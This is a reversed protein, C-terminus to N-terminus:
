SCKGRLDTALIRVMELFAELKKLKELNKEKEIEEQSKKDKTMAEGLIIRIIQVDAEDDLGAEEAISIWEKMKDSSSEIAQRLCYQILMKATSDIGNIIDFWSQTKDNHEEDSAGEIVMRFYRNTDNESDLSELVKLASELGKFPRTHNELLRRHHWLNIIAEACLKNKEEKDSPSANKADHILEAIYHSMWRGLTDVADELELEQVLKQGLNLIADFRVSDETRISYTSKQM